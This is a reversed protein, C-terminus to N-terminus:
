AAQCIANMMGCRDPTPAVIAKGWPLTSAARVKESIFVATCHSSATELGAERLHHEFIRCSRVSYLPTICAEGRALVSRVQQALGDSPIMDYVVRREIRKPDRESLDLTVEAGSLYLARRFPARSLMPLLTLVDGGAEAVNEFGARELEGATGAGVAYCTLTQDSIRQASARVALRSTFILADFGTVSLRGAGLPQFRLVPSPLVDRAVQAALAAAEIQYADPRTYVIM